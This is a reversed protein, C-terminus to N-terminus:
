REASSRDPTELSSEDLREGTVATTGRGPARTPTPCTAPTSLRQVLAIGGLGLALTASSVQTPDSVSMWAAAGALLGGAAACPGCGLELGRLPGSAPVFTALAASALVTAALATLTTLVSVDPAAAARSLLIAGLVLALGAVALLRRRTWRSAPPADLAPRVGAQAGVTSGPAPVAPAVGETEAAEGQAEPRGLEARADTLAGTGGDVYATWAAGSRARHEHQWRELVEGAVQEPRREPEARLASRLRTLAM